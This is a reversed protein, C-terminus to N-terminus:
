SDLLAYFEEIDLEDVVLSLMSEPWAWRGGDIVVWYYYDRHWGRARRVITTEKGLFEKGLFEEGLFEKKEATGAGCLAEEAAIRVKDGVCFLAESSADM